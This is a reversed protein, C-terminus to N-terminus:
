QGWDKGESDVSVSILRSSLGESSGLSYGVSSLGALLLGLCSSAAPWNLLLALLRPAM